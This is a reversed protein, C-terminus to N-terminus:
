RSGPIGSLYTNLSFGIGLRQVDVDHDILSEGYGDYYQVHGRVKGLLPFTYDLRTGYHHKGPNGRLMLSVEQDGFTRVLTVDGYGIYDDLRPNDDEEDSEPIRWHPAVSVAWDDRQFLFNAYLRNWSRSLPQSQGNSQHAFGIRNATNLWGFLRQDNDFNLFAEPEYNTERFPSSADPNYAQWWSRQTYALYLDGNDGFLNNLVNVKLSIQFKVETNDADANDSIANFDAQNTHTNYTWPLLYNRHYATITLPEPKIAAADRRLEVRELVIPASAQSVPAPGDQRTNQAVAPMILFFLWL